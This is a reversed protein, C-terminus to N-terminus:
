RIRIPRVYYQQFRDLKPKPLETIREKPCEGDGSTCEGHCMTQCQWPLNNYKKVKLKPAKPDIPFNM